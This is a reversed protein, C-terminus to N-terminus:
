GEAKTTSAPPHNVIGDWGFPAPQEIAEPKTGVIVMGAVEICFPEGHFEGGLQEEKDNWIKWLQWGAARTCQLHLAYNDSIKYATNGCYVTVDHYSLDSM